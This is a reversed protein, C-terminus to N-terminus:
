SQVQFHVRLFWFFFTLKIANKAVKVLSSVSRFLAAVLM